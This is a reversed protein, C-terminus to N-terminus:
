SAEGEATASQLYNELGTLKILRLQQELWL